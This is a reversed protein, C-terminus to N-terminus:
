MSSTRKRFAFGVERNRAGITQDNLFADSLGTKLQLAAFFALLEAVHVDRLIAHHRDRESIDVCGHSARDLALSPETNTEAAKTAGGDRVTM